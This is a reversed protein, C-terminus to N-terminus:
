EDLPIMKFQTPNITTTVFQRCFEIRVTWKSVNDKEVLEGRIGEWVGSTILFPKGVLVDEHVELEQQFGVTECTRVVRIEELFRQQDYQLPLIRVIANSRHLSPLGSESIKVFVYSTFLPRLVEKSYSYPVGKRVINHVKVARRVPLYCVIGKEKCYQEFVAEKNPRSCVARVVEDGVPELISEDFAPVKHAPPKKGKEM